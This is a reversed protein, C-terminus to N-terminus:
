NIALYAKFVRVAAPKENFVTTATAQASSDYGPQAAAQGFVVLGYLAGTQARCQVASVAGGQKQM